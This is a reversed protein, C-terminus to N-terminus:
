RAPRWRHPGSNRCRWRTACGGCRRPGRGPGSRGKWGPSARCGGGRGGGFGGGGGWGGGYFPGMGGMFGGFGGGRGGRGRFISFLIIIFIILVIIGTIGIHPSKDDLNRPEKIEGSALRMIETTALDLGTYYDPPSKRFNPKMMTERIRVTSLDTVVPELDYGVQISMKHDDIALYILVGNHLKGKAHIGWQEALRFAYDAIDDGELSREIVIAVQNSTSDDFAVLKNELAQIQQATLVGAFDNVLRPPNPVPPPEKAVALLVGLLTFLSAGLIRKVSYWM